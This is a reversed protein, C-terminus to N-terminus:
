GPFANDTRLFAVLLAGPDVIAINSPSGVTIAAQAAAQIISQAQTQNIYHRQSPTSGIYNNNPPMSQALALVPLALLSALKM